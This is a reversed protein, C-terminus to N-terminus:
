LRILTQSMEAIFDDEIEKWKSFISEDGDVLTIKGVDAVFLGNSWCIEVQVQISSPSESILIMGDLSDESCLGHPFCSVFGLVGEETSVLGSSIHWPLNREKSLKMLAAEIDQISKSFLTIKQSNSM